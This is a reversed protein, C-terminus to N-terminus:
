GLRRRILGLGSLATGFLVVTTGGDPVSPTQPNFMSWTTIGFKQADAGNVLDTGGANPLAFAPIDIITGPALGSIDWLVAGSNQGDYAAILYHFGAGTNIIVQSGSLTIGGFPTIIDGTTM